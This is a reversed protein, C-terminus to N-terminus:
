SMSFVPKIAKGAAQDAIAQNIQSFDYRTV